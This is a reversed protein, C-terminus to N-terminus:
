RTPAPRTGNGAQPLRQWGYTTMRYPHGFITVLHDRIPACGLAEYFRRARLNDTLVEIYMSVLGLQHFHDAIGYFLGRGVGHGQQEPDVYLTKLEGEYGLYRDESVVATAVGVLRGQDEAVLGCSGPLALLHHMRAESAVPTLGELFSPLVFPRYARLASERFIRAAEPLDSSKIPRIHIV